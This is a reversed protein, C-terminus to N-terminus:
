KNQLNNIEPDIKKKRGRANPEVKAKIPEIPKLEEEILEVYGLKILKSNEAVNIEHGIPLGHLEKIVKAKM